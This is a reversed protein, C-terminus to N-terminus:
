KSDKLSLAPRLGILIVVAVVLFIYQLPLFKLLVAASLTGFLWAAPRIDRFLDILDMDKRNVIKFFHVDQMAEVLSAGVRTMFLISAWVLFSTSQIFFISGTTIMMIILGTVMIEKEGLYRDALNGAPLQFIVFPLLMITFMVGLQSWEFGIYEHLYIPTYLVMICYFFRLVFSVKFIKALNKNHKFVKLLQHLPRNKYCINDKLNKREMLLILVTPLLVIGSVFYILWYANAGIIYGMTIPAIVWATNMITLFTTRIRGTHATDSINELFVDINIAILNWSLFHLIFFLLVIWKNLAYGLAFASIILTFLLFITVLYNSHRKIFRPFFFIAVLTIFTALAIYLSVLSIDMFQGLFSSQIYSPLAGSFAWLFGFAYILLFTLKNKIM